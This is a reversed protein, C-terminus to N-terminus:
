WRLCEEPADALTPAHWDARALDGESFSTLIGLCRCGAAKAAAVGNVADEVVLAQEPPVGLRSCATLFIEPDPKKHTVDTGTVISDFLGDEFGLQRLNIRVKMIDAASAVALKLGMSRAKAIFEPAGPLPRLNEERIMQGYLTYTERKAAELDLPIGYKEAVGGIYRDEGAGIFPVFDEPKAEAGQSRLYSIAAECIAAESDILVGDMDFVVASIM